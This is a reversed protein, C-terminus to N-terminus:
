AAERLDRLRVPRGRQDLLDALTINGERYLQARGPGLIAEVDEASRGSLWEDFTLDAPVQGDMSARTGAPEEDLDIGMERWSLVRPAFTCRCGAHLPCSEVPFNHGVPKPASNDAGLTWELGSRGACALCTRLDLTAVWVMGGIIDANARYSDVRAQNAVSQVATRVLTRANRTTTEMVGGSFEYGWRRPGDPDRPNLLEVRAGTSRGRVRRVIDDISEGSGIGLRVQAAFRDRLAADQRSWWDALPSGEILTDDVIRRLMGPTIQGTALELRAAANIASITWSAELAAMGALQEGVAAAMGGYGASITQNVQDLLSQLRDSQFATIEPNRALQAILDRQLEDLYGAVLELLHASFRGLYIGRAVLRDAISDNLSV